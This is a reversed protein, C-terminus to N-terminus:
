WPSVASMGSCNSTACAEVLLDLAWTDNPQLLLCEQITAVSAQLDGAAIQASALQYRLPLYWAPPEDYPLGDQLRVAATWQELPHDSSRALLETQALSLLQNVPFTAFVENFVGFGPGVTAVRTAARASVEALLAAEDQWDASGLALMAAARSFHYMGQWYDDACPPLDIELIHEWQEFAVFNTMEIVGFRSIPFGTEFAVATDNCRMRAMRALRQAAQTACNEQKMMRCAWSVTDVNHLPYVQMSMNEARHNLAVSEAYQGTHMFVHFAMHVIHPSKPLEAGIRRAAELAVEPSASAEYIHITLHHAFANDPERALAHSLWRLARATEPRPLDPTLWYDWPHTSMWAHAALVMAQTHRTIRSDSGVGATALNEVTEAYLQSLEIEQQLFSDVTSAVRLRASKSLQAAWECNAVTEARVAIEWSQPVTAILGPQDFTNLNPSLAFAEGWICVACNVDLKQAERFSRVARSFDFSAICAYGQNVFLQAQTSNTDAPFSLTSFGSILGISHGPEPPWEAAPEMPM